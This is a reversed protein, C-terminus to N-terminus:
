TAALYIVNHSAVLFGNESDVKDGVQEHEATIPDISVLGREREILGTVAKPRVRPSAKAKNVRELVVEDVTRL